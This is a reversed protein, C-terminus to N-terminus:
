SVWTDIQFFRFFSFWKIVKCQYLFQQFYKINQGDLPLHHTGSQFQNQQMWGSCTQQNRGIDKQLRHKPCTRSMNRYFANIRFILAARALLGIRVNGLSKGNHKHSISFNLVCVTQMTKDATYFLSSTLFLSKWCPFPLVMLRHLYISHRTSTSNPFVNNQDLIQDLRWWTILIHGFGIRHQVDGNDWKWHCICLHHGIDDCIITILIKIGWVM